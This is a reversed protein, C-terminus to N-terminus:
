DTQRKEIIPSKKTSKIKTEIKNLKLLCDIIKTALQKKENSLSRYTQLLNSENESLHSQARDSKHEVIEDISINLCDALKILTSIDPERKGSEYLSITSEVVGIKNALELQTLNQKKRLEKLKM